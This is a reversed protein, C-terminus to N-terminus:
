DQKIERQPAKRYWSENDVRLLVPSTVSELYHTCKLEM